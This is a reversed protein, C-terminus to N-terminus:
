NSDPVRVRQTDRMFERTAQDQVDNAALDRCVRVRRNSGITTEFRCVRRAAPEQSTTSPQARAAQAAPPTATPSQSLGLVLVAFSAVIM